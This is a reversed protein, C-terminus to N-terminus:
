SCSINSSGTSRTTCRAGGTVSIDGSGAARLDATETARASIDGSGSVSASLTRCTLGSGDIDGSGSVSITARGCSGAVAMDGSGSISLSLEPSDVAPLRIDGSGSIRGRFPGRVRDVSLDGSGSLSAGVLAQTGIAVTVGERRSWNWNGPKNSVILRDGEVRIDLRDLDAADGTAVVSPAVGTRVTVDMSGSVTVESFAGVPFSREAALTPAAALSIAAAFLSHLPRLTM